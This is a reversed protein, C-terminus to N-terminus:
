WWASTIAAATYRPSSATPLLSITWVPQARDPVGALAAAGACEYSLRRERLVMARGTVRYCYRGGTEIVWPAGSTPVAPPNAHDRPLPKALALRLADRSDPTGYPCLVFPRGGSFCPDWVEGTSVCRWADVRPDTLSGSICAGRADVLVHVGGAIQGARFAVWQELRTPTGGLAVGAWVLGGVLMLPIARRKM